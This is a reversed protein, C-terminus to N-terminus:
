LKSEVEDHFSGERYRIGADAAPQAGPDANPAMEGYALIPLGALHLRRVAAEPAPVACGDARLAGNSQFAVGGPLLLDEPTRDIGLVQHLQKLLPAALPPEVPVAGALLESRQQARQAVGGRRLVGLADLVRDHLLAEALEHLEQGVDQPGMRVLMGAQPLEDIVHVAAHLTRVVGEGPLPPLDDDGEGPERDIGDDRHLLQLEQGAGHAQASEMGSPHELGRLLIGLSEHREEWPDALPEACIRHVHDAMRADPEPASDGPVLAPHM